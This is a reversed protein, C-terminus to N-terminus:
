QLPIKTGKGDKILISVHKGNGKMKSSEFCDRIYGLYKADECAYEMNMYSPRVVAGSENVCAVDIISSIRDPDVRLQIESINPNSKFLMNIRNFEAQDHAKQRKAYFSETGSEMAKQEEQRQHIVEKIENIRNTAETAITILEANTTDVGLVEQTVELASRLQEIMSGLDASSKKSIDTMLSEQVAKKVRSFSGKMENAAIAKGSVPRSVFNQIVSQTPCYIGMTKLTEMITYVVVSVLTAYKPKDADCVGCVEENTIRHVAEMAHGMVDKSRADNLFSNFTTAYVVPTYNVSSETVNARDMMEMATEQLKSFISVHHRPATKDNLYIDIMSEMIKEKSKGDKEDTNENEAEDPVDVADMPDTDHDDVDLANKLEEDIEAERQYIEKETKICDLTKKKIVNAVEDLNIASAKSAFKKYEAETLASKDVVDNFKLKPDRCDTDKTVRDACAKASEMCTDYLVGLFLNQELTKHQFDVADVIAKAGGISKVVDYTYRKLDKEEGSSMKSTDVPLGNIFCEYVIAHMLQDAFKNTLTDRLIQQNIM